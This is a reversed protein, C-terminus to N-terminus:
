RLLAGLATNLHLRSMNDTDCTKHDGKKSRDEVEDRYRCKGM